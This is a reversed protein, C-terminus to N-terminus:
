LSEELRLAVTRIRRLVRETRRMVGNSVSDGDAGAIRFGYPM